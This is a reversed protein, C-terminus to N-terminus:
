QHYRDTTPGHGDDRLTFDELALIKRYARFDSSDLKRVM